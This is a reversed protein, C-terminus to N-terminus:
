RRIRAVKRELFTACTYRDFSVDHEPEINECHLDKLIFGGSSTLTLYYSSAMQEVKSKTVCGYERESM